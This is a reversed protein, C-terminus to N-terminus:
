NEPALGLIADALYEDHNEAVNSGEPDRYGKAIFANAREIMEKREKDDPELLRDVGERILASISSGRLRALEKLRKEQAATLQVQIRHM